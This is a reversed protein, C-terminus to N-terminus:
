PVWGPLAAAQEVWATMQAEDLADGEYIDIWRADKSKPTGGSPLPQLSLGRFFTVKVYKTLCHVSLFWGRGEVGYFPSNWKVAKCVGPVARVVVADLWRGIDRKWGPMAAIYAQVPADGDGKAIQPNGGSLLKVPGVADAGSRARKVPTLNQAIAAAVLAKFAEGDVQEGEHIDIARRTNGELSSNFLRSPDPVGAGRAFTLKVVKSYAEGTCIIGHRSWVPNNWKWEETVQSDAELILARVRALAEGRWAGLDRIRQDILRSASPGGAGATAVSKAKAGTAAAPKDARNVRPARKAKSKAKDESM